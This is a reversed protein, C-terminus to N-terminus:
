IISMNLVPLMAVEVQLQGYYFMKLRSEKNQFFLLLIIPFGCQRCIWEGMLKQIGSCIKIFNRVYMMADLGM